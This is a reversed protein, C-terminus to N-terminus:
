VLYEEVQKLGICSIRRSTKTHALILWGKIVGGIRMVRVVAIGNRSKHVIFVSGWVGGQYAM